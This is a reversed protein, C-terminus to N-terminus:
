FSKISCLFHHKRGLIEETFIVLDETGATKNVNVSSIRLLM